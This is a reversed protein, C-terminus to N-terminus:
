VGTEQFTLPSRRGRRPATAAACHLTFRRTHRAMFRAAKRRMFRRRAHPASLLPHVLAEGTYPPVGALAAGIGSATLYIKRSQPDNREKIFYYIGAGLVLIGIILGILKM